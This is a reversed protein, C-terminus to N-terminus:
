DSAKVGGEGKFYLCLMTLDDFQPADGVFQDVSKKVATLVEEPAAAPDANLAEIMRDTGYLENHADTAEAVGDTYVFLSDGPNLQFDHERYKIQSLAAVAPSHRYVQLEYNGGARRLAPHEHGANASIGEGTKVNLIALWVTVFLRQPNSECLLENTKNLIKAPSLEGMLAQDKILTKAIVMFLAAPVGKGSVDAMVLALHDEDIFFFDYFDGGVEKAPTMSAFLDFEERDPFPPFKQPLMGAQIDTAVSLEAGIREKEKTVKMLNEVYDGLDKEMDAMTDALREIEDGSDIGLNSFHEETEEGALKDNAYKKAANAVLNIPSVVMKKMIRMLVLIYITMILVLAVFYWIVFNRMGAVLDRLNIDAMIYCIVEGKANRFPVGSSCLWGNGPIYWFGYLKGEGNWNLYKDIKDPSIGEWFGPRCATEPNEDPDAIYIEANTDSIQKVLYLDSVDNMDRYERLIDILRQYDENETFEKFHDLYAESNPDKREEESLGLYTSSFSDALKEVDIVDEIAVATMRSLNFAKTIYQDALVVAYIGLGILLSVIGLALVGFLSIRFVRGQLSRQKKKKPEKTKEKKESM